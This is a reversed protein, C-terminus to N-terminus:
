RVPPRVLVTTKVQNNTEDEEGVFNGVDAFMRAEFLSDSFKESIQFERKWVQNPGLTIQQAPVVNPQGNPQIRVGSRFLSGVVTLPGATLNSDNVVTYRITLHGEGIVVAGDPLRKGDDNNIIKVICSVDPLQSM